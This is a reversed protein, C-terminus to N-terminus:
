NLPNRKHEHLDKLIRRLWVVECTITVTVKYKAEITSLSVKPKKNTSWAVAVLGM